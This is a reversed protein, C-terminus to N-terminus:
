GPWGAHVGWAGTYARKMRDLLARLLNSNKEFMMLGVTARLEGGQRGLVAKWHRLDEFNRLSLADTDMYIGGWDHLIQIRRFDAIFAPHTIKVGNLSLPVDARAFPVVATVFQKAAQWWDAATAPEIGDLIHVILEEPQLKEWASRIAVYCPWDFFRTDRDTLVFHVISPIPLTRSIRTTDESCVCIMNSPGPKSPPLKGKYCLWNGSVSCMESLDQVSIALNHWFPLNM